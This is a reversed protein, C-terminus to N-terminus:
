SIADEASVFCDAVDEAADRMAEVHACRGQECNCLYAARKADSYDLLAKLAKEDLKVTYGDVFRERPVRILPTRDGGGVRAARNWHGREAM